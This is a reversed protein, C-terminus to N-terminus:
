ERDTMDESSSSSPSSRGQGEVILHELMTSLDHHFIGAHIAEDYLGASFLATAWFSRAPDGPKTTNFLSNLADLDLELEVGSDIFDQWQIWVLQRVHPDELVTAANYLSALAGFDWAYQTSSQDVCQACVDRLETFGPSICAAYKQVALKSAGPLGIRVHHVDLANNWLRAALGSSRVLDRTSVRIVSLSSDCENCVEITSYEAEDPEDAQDYLDHNRIYDPPVWGAVRTSRDQTTDAEETIAIREAQEAKEQRLMKSKPAADKKSYIIKRPYDPRAAMWAERHTRARKEMAASGIPHQNARFVKNYAQAVAPWPLPRNTSSQQGYPDPKNNDRTFIIFSIQEDALNQKDHVHTTRPALYSSGAHHAESCTNPTDIIEEDDEHSSSSDSAEHQFHISLPQGNAKLRNTAQLPHNQRFIDM